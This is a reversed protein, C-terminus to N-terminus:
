NNPPAESIEGLVSEPDREEALDGLSVIGVLSGDVLVPLRRIAKDAMLRSAEVAAQDPGITVLDRSCIEGGTASDPDAGAALGDVVVGRDTLIGSLRGDQGVVLVDGIDHDRMVEAAHRLSASESVSVPDPTMIDRVREPM